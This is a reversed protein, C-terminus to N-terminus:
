LAEDNWRLGQRIRSETLVWSLQRGAERLKRQTSKWHLFETHEIAVNALGGLVRDLDPRHNSAAAHCGRHCRLMEGRRRPADLANEYADATAVGM